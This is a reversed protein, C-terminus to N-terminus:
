RPWVELTIEVAACPELELALLDVHCAEEIRALLERWPVPAAMTITKSFTQPHNESSSEVKTEFYVKLQPLDVPKSRATLRYGLRGGTLNNLVAKLFGRVSQDMGRSLKIPDIDVGALEVRLNCLADEVLLQALTKHRLGRKASDRLIPLDLTLGSICLTYSFGGFEGATAHQLALLTSDTVSATYRADAARPDVPSAKLLLLSAFSILLAFVLMDTTYGLGRENM